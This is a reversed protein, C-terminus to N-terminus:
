RSLYWVHGIQGWQHVLPPTYAFFFGLGQDHLFARVKEHRAEILEAAWPDSTM